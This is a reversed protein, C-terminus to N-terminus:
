RGGRKRLRTAGAPLISEPLTFRALMANEAVRHLWERADSSSTGRAILSFYLHAFEDALTTAFVLPDDDGLVISVKAGVFTPDGPLPYLQFAPHDELRFDGILMNSSPNVEVAISLSALTSRLFHQAEQLMTIESKDSIVTVPINGRVYTRASTLYEWLLTLAKDRTAPPNLGRMFPYGLRRLVAPMHRLERARLLDNLTCPSSYLNRSLREIEGRVRETRHAEARLDGARYRAMEWLLDDLREIAPQSVQDAYQAWRAPPLGLAIAHGLRDGTQVAGFEIPEHIRRVGEVLRRFEEGAHMTVRFPPIRGHRALAASAGLSSARLQAILPLFVWTPQSLELACVDIGRLVVLLQPLFRLATQIAIAEIHRRSYYAGYRCGHAPQRPDAYDASGEPRQKLFHLVLGREPNASRPSPAWAVQGILSRTAAWGNEPSTRVELSGLRGTRSELELASAMVANALHGRLNSMRNYHATFWDLGSTGPEQVVHRYVIGRLRVYQWFIGTFREDGSPEFLRALARTLFRTEPLAAGTRLWRAIPDARAVADRPDSRVDLPRSPAVARLMPRLRTYLPPSSGRALASLAQMMLGPNISRAAVRGAYTAFNDRDRRHRDEWQWLYGAMLARAVAGVTLWSLFCRGGGLPAPGGRDLRRHDDPDTGARSMLNTWLVEFPVSAGFHLHTNALCLEDHFPWLHTPIVTVYDTSPVQQVEAALAAILLDPPLALSIWRWRSSTQPEELPDLRLVARGGEFRLLKTAARALLAVLPVTLSGTAQRNDAFWVSEQIQRLVELSLGRARPRLYDIMSGALRNSRGDLVGARDEALRSAAIRFSAESAFPWALATAHVFGYPLAGPV